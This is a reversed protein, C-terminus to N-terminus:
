APPPYAVVEPTDRGAWMVYIETPLPSTFAAWYPLPVAQNPGINGAVKDRHADDLMDDSSTFPRDRHWVSEATETGVNRLMYSNGQKEVKWRVANARSEAARRESEEQYARETLENARRVEDAQEQTADAALEAATASREAADASRGAASASDKAYYAAVLSVVLAAAALVGIWFEVSM